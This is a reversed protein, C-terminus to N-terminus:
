RRYYVEYALDVLYGQDLDLDLAELIADDDPPEGNEDEEARSEIFEVIRSVIRDEEEKKELAEMYGEILEDSFLGDNFSM